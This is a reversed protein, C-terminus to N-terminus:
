RNRFKECTFKNKYAAIVLAVLIVTTTGKLLWKNTILEFLKKM